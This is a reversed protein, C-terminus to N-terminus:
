LKEFIYQIQKTVIITMGLTFKRMPPTISLTNAEVTPSRTLGFVIFHNNKANVLSLSSPNNCFWFLIDSHLSMDTWHVNLLSSYICYLFWKLPFWWESMSIYSWTKIVWIASSLDSLMLCSDNVGFTCKMRESMTSMGFLLSNCRWLSCWFKM